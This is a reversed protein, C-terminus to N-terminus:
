LGPNWSKVKPTLAGLLKLKYKQATVKFYNVYMCVYMCLRTKNKRDGLGGVVKGVRHGRM